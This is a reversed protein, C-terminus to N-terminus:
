FQVGKQPAPWKDPNVGCKIFEAKVVDHIYNILRQSRILAEKAKNGNGYPNHNFEATTIAREFEVKIRKLVQGIDM